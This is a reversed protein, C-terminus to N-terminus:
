RSFGIGRESKRDDIRQNVKTAQQEIAREARVLANDTREIARKYADTIQQGRTIPSENAIPRKVSERVRQVAGGLRKLGEKFKGIAGRLATTVRNEDSGGLQNEYRPRQEQQHLDREKEESSDPVLDGGRAIFTPRETRGSTRVENNTPEVREVDGTAVMGRDNDRDAGVLGTNHHQNSGMSGDRSISARKDDKGNQVQVRPYPASEPEPYRKGHRERRRSTFQELKEQAALYSSEAGRRYTRSQVQIEKGLGEGATFNQEYFFGKLRLNRGGDPDKISISTKTQRAMEFGADELTSIVDDRSKIEGALLLGEISATIAEVAQKQGKPLANSLKMVQKKAPDDPSTLGYEHNIVTKWSDVLPRDAKDYYPQLRKGTTLEVNPIFFNLELRGKDRHEVWTINYQDNALGALLTKEFSAMIEQKQEEPINQEEFSLCGVTYRTKFGSGDAIAVSLDPDGQLLRAGERDRNRGLLYDVSNGAGKAGGKVRFFKVIM